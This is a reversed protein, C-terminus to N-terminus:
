FEAPRLQFLSRIVRLVFTFDAFSHGVVAAIEAHRFFDSGSFM